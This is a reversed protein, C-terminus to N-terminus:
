FTIKDNTVQLTAVFENSTNYQIYAVIICPQLTAAVVFRIVASNCTFNVSYLLLSNNIYPLISRTQVYSTLPHPPPSPAPVGLM